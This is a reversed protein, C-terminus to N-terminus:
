QLYIVTVSLLRLLVRALAEEGPLFAKGDGFKGSYQYNIM